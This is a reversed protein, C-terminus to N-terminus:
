LAPKAHGARFIEISLAFAAIAEPFTVEVSKLFAPIPHNTVM